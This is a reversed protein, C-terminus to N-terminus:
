RGGNLWKPLRRDRNEMNIRTMMEGGVPDDIINIEYYNYFDNSYITQLGMTGWYEGSNKDLFKVWNKTSDIYVLSEAGIEGYNIVEIMPLIVTQEEDSFEFWQTFGRIEVNDGVCYENWFSRYINLVVKEIPLRGDTNVRCYRGTNDLVACIPMGEEEEGQATNTKTLDIEKNHHTLIINESLYNFPENQEGKTDGTPNYYEIENDVDLISLLSYDGIGNDDFVFLVNNESNLLDLGHGDYEGYIEPIDAKFIWKYYQDEKWAYIYVEDLLDNQLEVIDGGSQDDTYSEAGVQVKWVEGFYETYSGVVSDDSWSFLKWTKTEDDESILDEDYGRHYYLPEAYSVWDEDQQYSVLAEYPNKNYFIIGAEKDIFNYLLNYYGTSSIAM